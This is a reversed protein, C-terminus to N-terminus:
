DDITRTRRAAIKIQVSERMVKRFRPDRRVTQWLYGRLAGQRPPAEFNRVLTEVLLDVRIKGDEKSLTVHKNLLDEAILALAERDFEGWEEDHHAYERFVVDLLNRVLSLFDKAEARSFPREWELRRAHAPARGPTPLGVPDLAARMWYVGMLVANEEPSATLPLSGWGRGLGPGGGPGVASSLSLEGEPRAHVPAGFATDSSPGYGAAAKAENASRMAQAAFFSVRIPFPHDHLLKGREGTPVREVTCSLAGRVGDGLDLVLPDGPGGRAEVEPPGFAPTGGPLPELGRVQFVWAATVGRARRGPQKPLWPGLHVRHTFPTPPKQGPPIREVWSIPAAVPLGGPGGALFLQGMEQFIRDDRPARSYGAVFQDNFAADELELSLHLLTIAEQHRRLEDLPISPWPHDQWRFRVGERLMAPVALLTLLQLKQLGELGHRGAWQLARHVFALEAAPDGFLRPSFSRPEGVEAAVTELWRCREALTGHLFSAPGVM